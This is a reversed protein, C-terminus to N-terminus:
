VGFHDDYDAPAVTSKETVKEDIIEDLGNIDSAPLQADKHRFSDIMDGFQSANPMKYPGFWEKLKSIPQKM